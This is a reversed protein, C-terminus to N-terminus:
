IWVRPSLGIRMHPDPDYDCFTSKNIKTTEISRSGSGCEWYPDPYLSLWILASGHPDPDVVSIQM